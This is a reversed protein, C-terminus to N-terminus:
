PTPPKKKAPGWRARAGKLAIARRHAATLNTMRRAGSIAGGKKGLASMYARYGKPPPPLDSAPAPTSARAPQKLRKPMGYKVVHSFM